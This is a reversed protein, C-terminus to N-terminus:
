SSNYKKTHKEPEIQEKTQLGFVRELCEIVKQAIEEDVGPNDPLVPRILVRYFSELAGRQQDPTLADFRPCLENITPGINSALNEEFL